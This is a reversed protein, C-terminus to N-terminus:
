PFNREGGNLAGEEAPVEGSVVVVVLGNQEPKRRVEIKGPEPRREREDEVRMGSEAEAKHGAGITLPCLKLAASVRVRESELGDREVVEGSQSWQGGAKLGREIDEGTRESPGKVEIETLITMAEEQDNM